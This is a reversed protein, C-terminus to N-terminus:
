GNEMGIIKDWSIFDQVLIEAKRAVQCRAKTNPDDWNMYTFLAEFDIQEEAEDQNLKDVGSKNSVAATFRTTPELIVSRDIKFWVPELIRGDRMACFLMPHDKIFALHVFDDMGKSLDADHSWDNGGPRSVNINFERIVRLSCLGGQEKITQVNSKDTFHWVSDFKPYKNITSKMTLGIGFSGM